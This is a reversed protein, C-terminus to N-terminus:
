DAGGEVVYLSPRGDREVRTAGSPVDPRRLSESRRYPMFGEAMGRVSKRGPREPTADSVRGQATARPAVPPSGGTRDGDDRMVIPSIQTQRLEFRRPARGLPGESVLCGLVRTIDGMDSRLPLLLLRADLQPRGPGRQGAMTLTAAAPGTFVRELTDSVPRRAEPMFMATLPMGRVEMGMLDSLHMGALRFRAIGPAIRELIFAYELADEIRRPDIESRFPVPRSARIERWYAEVASIASFRNERPMMSSLSVIKADQGNRTEDRTM